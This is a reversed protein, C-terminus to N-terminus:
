GTYRFNVNDVTLKSSLAVLQRMHKGSDLSLIDITLSPEM